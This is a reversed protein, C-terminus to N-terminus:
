YYAAVRNLLIWYGAPFFGESVVDEVERIKELPIDLNPQTLLRIAIAGVQTAGFPVSLIDGPKIELQEPIKYTFLDSCGPCDVLVEVWQSLKTQSQYLGGPESVTIVSSNVSISYM